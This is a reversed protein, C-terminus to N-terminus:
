DAKKAAYQKLFGISKELRAVTEELDRPKKSEVALEPWQKTVIAREADLVQMIGADQIADLLQGAESRFSVVMAKTMKSIAM